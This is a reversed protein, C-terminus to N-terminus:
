TKMVLWVVRGTFSNVLDSRFIPQSTTGESSAPRNTHLQTYQWERRNASCCPMLDNNKCTGRKKVISSSTWICKAAERRSSRAHEFQSYCDSPLDAYQNNTKSDVKNSDFSSLTILTVQNAQEKCCLPNIQFIYLQFCVSYPPTTIILNVKSWPTHQSPPFTSCLTM